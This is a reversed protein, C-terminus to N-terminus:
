LILIPHYKSNDMSTVGATDWKSLDANFGVAGQFVAIRTKYSRPVLILTRHNIIFFFILFSFGILSLLV